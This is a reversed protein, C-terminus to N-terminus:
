TKPAPSLTYTTKLAAASHKKIVKHKIIKVIKKNETNKVDVKNEVPITPQSVFVPIAAPMTKQQMAETKETPSKQMYWVALVFVLVVASVSFFVWGRGSQRQRTVNMVLTGEAIPSTIQRIDPLLGSAELAEVIQSESIGVLRAYSRLYGRVFIAAGFSDYCDHELDHVAQVSLRTHKAIDVPSLARTERAAILLRGPTMPFGSEQKKEPM